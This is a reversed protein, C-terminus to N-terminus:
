TLQQLKHIILNDAKNIHFNHIILYRIILYKRVLIQPKPECQCNRNIKDIIINVQDSKNSM